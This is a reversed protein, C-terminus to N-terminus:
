SEDAQHDPEVPDDSARLAELDGSWGAGEMALAEERSM